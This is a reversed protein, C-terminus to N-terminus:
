AWVDGFTRMKFESKPNARREKMFDARAFKAEELTPFPKGTYSDVEVFCDYKPPKTSKARFAFGTGDARKFIGTAATKIYTHNNRVFKTAQKKPTPSIEKEDEIEQVFFQPKEDPMIGSADELFDPMEYKKM